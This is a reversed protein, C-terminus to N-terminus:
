ASRSYWFGSDQRCARSTAASITTSSSFRSTAGQSRGDGQTYVGEQGGADPIGAPSKSPPPVASLREEQRCHRRTQRKDSLRREAGGEERIRHLPRLHGGDGGPQGKGQGDVGVVERSDLLRQRARPHQLDPGLCGSFTFYLCSHM